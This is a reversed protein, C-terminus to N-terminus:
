VSLKCIKDHRRASKSCFLVEQCKRCKEQQQHKRLGTLTIKENCHECIKPENHTYLHFNLLKISGFLKECKPCPITKDVHRQAEHTQIGDKRASKFDCKSCQFMKNEEKKRHMQEFHADARVQTHFYRSCRSFKCQIKFEYHYYNVHQHLLYKDACMKKCYICKVEERVVIKKTHVDAVHEDRENQTLFYKFCTEKICKFADPLQQKHKSRLHNKMCKFLLGCFMCSTMKEGVAHILEEHKEMVEESRFYLDCFQYSCSFLNDNKHYIEMHSRSMNITYKRHCFDCKKMPKHDKLTHEKKEEETRFVRACRGNHKCQIFQGAHNKRMHLLMHQHKDFAQHDCLFCQYLVKLKDAKGSLKCPVLNTNQEKLTASSFTPIAAPGLKM